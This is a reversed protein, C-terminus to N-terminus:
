MEEHGMEGLVKKAEEAAERKLTNIDKQILEIAKDAIKVKMIDLAQVLYSAMTESMDDYCSSRGYYGHVAEVALIANCWYGDHSMKVLRYGICGKDNERDPYGTHSRKTARYLGTITDELKPITNTAKEYKSM